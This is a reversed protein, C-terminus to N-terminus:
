WMRGVIRDRKVKGFTHMHMPVSRNDGIVFYEDGNLVQKRLDWHGRLELYPEPLLEGDIRVIGDHIEVTEGPLGVVRKLYMVNKGAMRIGVIDYRQPRTWRYALTNMFGYDSSRYRPQMSEGQIRIPLFVTSCAGYVVVGLIVTRVLTHRWNSGVLVRKLRRM